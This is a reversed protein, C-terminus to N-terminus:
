QAEETLRNDIDYLEDDWKCYSAWARDVSRQVRELERLRRKYDNKSRARNQMVMTRRPTKSM